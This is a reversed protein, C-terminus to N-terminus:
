WITYSIDLMPKVSINPHINEQRDRMSKMMKIKLVLIVQRGTSLINKQLLLNKVPYFKRLKISFLLKISTQFKMMTQIMKLTKTMTSVIFVEKVVIIAKLTKVIQLAIVKSLAQTVLNPVILKDKKKVHKAKLVVKKNFSSPKKTTRKITYWISSKTRKLETPNEKVTSESAILVLAHVRLSYIKPWFSDLHSNKVQDQVELYKTLKITIRTLM